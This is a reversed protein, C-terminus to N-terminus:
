PGPAPRLRPHATIGPGGATGGLGVLSLEARATALRARGAALAAAYSAFGQGYTIPVADQLHTRGPKVTGREAQALRRWARELAALEAELPRLLALAALRVATPTVDNSSQGLNVHDNPHVPRYVGRRGGLREHALNASGENANMHHPTGAGAQFPDLVFAADLENAAVRAAAGEIARALRGPLLGLRRNVRAAALKILGLARIYAPHPRLGSLQFTERARETFVGYLARAPVAKEGLSDRELRVPDPRASEVNRAA